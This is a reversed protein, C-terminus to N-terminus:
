FVGNSHYMLPKARRTGYLILCNQQMDNTKEYKFLNKDKYLRDKFFSETLGIYHPHNKNTFQNMRIVKICYVVNQQFCNGNLPCSSKDRCNCSSKSLKSEDNSLTKKNHSKIISSINPMSKPM